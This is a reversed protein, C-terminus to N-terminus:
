AGGVRGSRNGVPINPPQLIKSVLANSFENVNIKVRDGGYTSGYGLIKMLEELDDERMAEGTTTM